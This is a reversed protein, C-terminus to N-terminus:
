QRQIAKLRYAAASIVLILLLAKACLNNISYNDTSNAPSTGTSTEVM